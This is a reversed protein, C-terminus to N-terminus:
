LNGKMLDSLKIDKKNKAIKPETIKYSKKSKFSSLGIHTKTEEKLMLIEMFFNKIAEM